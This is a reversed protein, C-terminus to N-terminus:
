ARVIRERTRDWRMYQQRRYSEIGIECAVVGYYGLMHDCKLPENQRIARMLNGHHLGVNESGTKKHEYPKVEKAFLRQPEIVFGTRTFRLTAKHGRLVHEVATDNALSSVLLVTPGEPYDLMINFTDPVEPRKFYWNGGSAVGRDPFTLGLAKIIRTVRHIFLDSAIGGSYDWYRRWRFFRQPDWDRKPAPGLWTKWDLNVGPKADPDIEYMWIDDLHNRSYDIEAVVVKGLTGDKVFQNATEYSDDSMGQVGVQLKIGKEKVRAVLRRAQESTRTMPKEIYIHKGASVADMAIQYHWHETVAILVYDVEKLALVQRYDKYPRGGTLSAAAETRKDFLDCVAVIEFNEAERMKVLTKMHDTAMGGCGIVGIRLREGAGAVQASGRATMATAVGAAGVFERRTFSEMGVIKGSNRRSDEFGPARNEM